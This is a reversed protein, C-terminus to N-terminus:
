IFATSRSRSPRELAYLQKTPGFLDVFVVGHKGALEEMARTYLEINVNNQKGDTIHPNKLDEQAIPSLLM